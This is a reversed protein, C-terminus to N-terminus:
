FNEEVLTEEGLYRENIEELSLEGWETQFSQTSTYIHVLVHEILSGMSPDTLEPFSRMSIMIAAIVSAIGSPGRWVRRGFQRFLAEEMLSNGILGDQGDLARLDALTWCKVPPPAEEPSGLIDRPALSGDVWTPGLYGPGRGGEWVDRLTQQAWKDRGRPATENM